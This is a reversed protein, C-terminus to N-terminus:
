CCAAATADVQTDLKRQPAERFEGPLDAPTEPGALRSVFFCAGAVQPCLAHVAELQELTAMGQAHDRVVAVLVGAVIDLVKVVRDDQQFVRLGAIAEILEDAGEHGGIEELVQWVEPHDLGDQLEAALLELLRIHDADFVSAEAAEEFREEGHTADTV